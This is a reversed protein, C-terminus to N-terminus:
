LLEATPTFTGYDDQTAYPSIGWDHLGLASAATVAKPWM